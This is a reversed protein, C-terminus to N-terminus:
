RAAKVARALTDAAKVPDVTKANFFNSVVDFIAAQVYSTTAIGHSVSPVLGGDKETQKFAQMAAQACQDFPTLDIDMRVPISGKSLNFPTQFSKDLIARALDHQAQQNAQGNLKFFAFSDINYTFANATGPAPVCVYDRGLVKGDANFEGKVWDGMIQMAADGQSVMQTADNWDRGRYEPDVYDRFRRFQTFVEVMKPGGLLSLDLEVFARQYDEPGLVALAVTEFLTVNQWPQGGHALPIYGAQKIAEAVTFFDVLTVPVAVGVDAFIQPNAWLWNVRHINVPVAVYNGDHLMINRAVAPLIDKWHDAEAVANLNTLFGLRGWEQIEHGKIQAALPPNGSVARTKLVTMASDGGGGAVAFDKWQHGQAEMKAKLLSASRAEGGSTWWHLVEVEGAHATLSLTAAVLWSVACGIQKRKM